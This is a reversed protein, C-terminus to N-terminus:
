KMSRLWTRVLTARLYDREETELEAKTRKQIHAPQVMMLLKNLTPIHEETLIGLDVGLRVASSLAACETSGLLRSNELIGLARWIKDEIQLKADKILLEKAKTEYQLLQAVIRDVTEVIEEEALGLTTQNSVQFLNGIFNSGEGRFGRVALGIQSVGNIVKGIERTLVLGPLHVLVSARMGTGVNTPCATLYGLRDDYAPTNFSEIERDVERAFRLAGWLNLGSMISSIRIHDEENIQISVGEDSRFAVAVDSSDRASTWGILHREALFTRNTDDLVSIDVYEAPKMGELAPLARQISSKIKELDDPSSRSVFPFGEINRALRVRSSIISASEPGHGSLWDSIMLHRDGLSDMM